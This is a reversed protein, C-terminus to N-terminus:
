GSCNINLTQAYLNYAIEKAFDYIIIKDILNINSSYALELISCLRNANLRINKLLEEAEKNKLDEDM